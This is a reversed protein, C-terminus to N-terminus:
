PVSIPWRYKALGFVRDLKRGIVYSVLLYTIVAVITLLFMKRQLIFSTGLQKSKIAPNRSLSDLLLRGSLSKGSSLIILDTM